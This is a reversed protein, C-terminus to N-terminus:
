HTLIDVTLEAQFYTQGNLWPQVGYITCETVTASAVVGGLTQDADILDPISNPTGTSLWDLLQDQQSVLDVTNLLCWVAVQLQVAGEFTAHLTIPTKPFCVIAPEVVTGPVRDYIEADLPDLQAAVASVIEALDPM